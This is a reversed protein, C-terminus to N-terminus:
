PRLADAAGRGKRTRIWGVEYFSSEAFDAYWIRSALIGLSGRVVEGCPSFCVLRCWMKHERMFIGGQACRVGGLAALNKAGTVM